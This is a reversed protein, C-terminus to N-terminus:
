RPRSQHQLFPETKREWGQDRYEGASGPAARGNEFAAVIAMASWVHVEILKRRNPANSYDMAFRPRMMAYDFDGVPWPYM